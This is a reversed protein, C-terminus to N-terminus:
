SDKSKKSLDMVSAKKPRKNARKPREADEKGNIARIIADIDKFNAKRLKELLRSKSKYTTNMDINLITSIARQSFGCCLMLMIKEDRENIKAVTRFREFLNDFVTDVYEIMEPYMGSELESYILARLRRPEQDANLTERITEAATNLLRFRSCLAKELAKEYREKKRKFALFYAIGYTLALATICFMTWVLIFDRKLVEQSHMRAIETEKDTAFSYLSTLLISDNLKQGEITYRLADKYNGKRQNIDSLIHSRRIRQMEDEIHAANIFYEASDLRNQEAYIASLTLYDTSLLQYHPINVLSDIYQLSLDPNVNYLLISLGRFASIQVSFDQQEKAIRLAQKYYNLAIDNIDCSLYVNGKAALVDAMYDPMQGVRYADYAKDYYELAKEFQNEAFYLSGVGAYLLGKYKSDGSRVAFPEAELFIGIATTGHGRNQEIRGSYYRALLKERDTGFHEYYEIAPSIVSDSQLDIYNKDLAQSRLLSYRARARSSRLIDRPISDLILLASDPSQEMLAAARDMSALTSDNTCASCVVAVCIFLFLRKMSHDKIRVTFNHNKSSDHLYSSRLSYKACPAAAPGAAVTIMRLVQVYRMRRWFSVSVILPCRATIAPTAGSMEANAM